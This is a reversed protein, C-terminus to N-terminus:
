QGTAKNARLEERLEEYRRVRKSAIGAKVLRVIAQPYLAILGLPLILTGFIFKGPVPKRLSHAYNKNLEIAENLFMLKEHDDKADIIKNDLLSIESQYSM